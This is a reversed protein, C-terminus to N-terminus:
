QKDLVAIGMVQTQNPEVYWYIVQTDSLRQITVRVNDLCDNQGYTLKERFTAIRKTRHLPKWEGGCSLSPYEIRFTNNRATLRLTWNEKTNSQYATGEWVGELWGFSRRALKPRSTGDARIAAVESPKAGNLSGANSSRIEAGFTFFVLMLLLCAFFRRTAKM